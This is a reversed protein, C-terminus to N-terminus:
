ILIQPKNALETLASLREQRTTNPKNWILTAKQFDTLRFGIKEFRNRAYNSDIIEFM